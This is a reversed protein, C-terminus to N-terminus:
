WDFAVLKNRYFGLNRAAFDHGLLTVDHDALYATRQIQRREKSTKPRRAIVQLCWRYRNGYDSELGHVWWMPIIQIGVKPALRKADKLDMVAYCEGPDKVVWRGIKYGVLDPGNLLRKAKPFHQKLAALNKLTRLQKALLKRTLYHYATRKSLLKDGM